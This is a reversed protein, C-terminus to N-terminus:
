LYREIAGEPKILFKIIAGEIRLLIMGESAMERANIM